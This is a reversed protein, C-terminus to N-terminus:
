IEADAQRDVKQDRAAVDAVGFEVEPDFRPLRIEVVQAFAPRRRQPGSVGSNGTWGVLVDASACRSGPTLDDCADLTGIGFNAFGQLAGPAFKPILPVSAVRHNCHRKQVRLECSDTGCLTHSSRTRPVLTRVIIQAALLTGQHSRQLLDSNDGAGTGADALRNRQRQHLLAVGGDERS